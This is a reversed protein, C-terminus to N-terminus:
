ATQFKFLKERCLPCSDGKILHKLLCNTHICQNCKPCKKLSDKEKFEDLCICCEGGKEPFATDELTTADIAAQRAEIARQRKRTTVQEVVAIREAEYAAEREAVIEVRRALEFRELERKTITKHIRNIIFAQEHFSRYGDTFRKVLAKAKKETCNKTYLKDEIKNTIHMMTKSAKRLPRYKEKAFDKELDTALPHRIITSYRDKVQTAVWHNYPFDHLISEAKLRQDFKGEWDMVPVILSYHTNEMEM